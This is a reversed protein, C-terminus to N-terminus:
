SKDILNVNGTRWQYSLGLGTAIVSFSVSDNACATQDQPQSIIIPSSLTSCGETGVASIAATTFAGTTTLARGNLQVGTNLSVAGNNVIVTGVM